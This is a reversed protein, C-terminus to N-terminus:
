PEVDTISPCCFEAIVDCIRTPQRRKPRKPCVGSGGGGRVDQVCRPYLGSASGGLLTAFCQAIHFDSRM